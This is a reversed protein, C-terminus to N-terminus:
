AYVEVCLSVFTKRVYSRFRGQNVLEKDTAAEKQLQQQAHNAVPGERDVSWSRLLLSHGPSPKKHTLAKYSFQVPSGPFSYLVCAAAHDSTSVVHHPTATHATRAARTGQIGIDLGRRTHQGCSM